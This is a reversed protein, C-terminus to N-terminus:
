LADGGPPFIRREAEICAAFSPRAHMREAFAALRPWRVADVFGGAFRLNVLQTAVSLDAITFGDGVLFTREGVEGELWDFLPPLEERFTRRALAVDPPRGLLRQVVLPRFMGLGIRGALETDAFEELWLARGHAFAEAPYLAPAPHKRELYACIASSDPLTGAAGETGVSRDRLVPIRKAPNIAAFWDPPPFISVAEMEYDIGKEALFVQVKRVFPSGKVGYILLDAAM